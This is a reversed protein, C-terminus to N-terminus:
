ASPPFFAPFIVETKVNSLSFQERCGHCVTFYTFWLLSSNPLTHSFCYPYEPALNQQLAALSMWSCILCDVTLM